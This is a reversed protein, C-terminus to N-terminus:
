VGLCCQSILYAVISPPPAGVMSKIDNEFHAVTPLILPNLVLNVSKRFRLRVVTIDEDKSM